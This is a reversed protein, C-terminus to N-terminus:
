YVNWTMYFNGKIRSIKPVAVMPEAHMDITPRGNTVEFYYNPVETKAKKHHFSSITNLESLVYPDLIGSKSKMSYEFQISMEPSHLIEGSNTAFMSDPRVKPFLGVLKEWYVVELGYPNSNDTNFNADNATIGDVYNRTVVYYMSAGYDLISNKINDRTPSHDGLYVAEIYDTWIAVTKYIPFHKTDAFTLTISGATRSAMSHRGYKIKMGHHTDFKEISDLHQDDPAYGKVQNTFMPMFPSEFGTNHQLQMVCTKNTINQISNIDTKDVELLSGFAGRGRLADNITMDSGPKKVINCDPRTFFLYGRLGGIDLYGQPIYFRNFLEMHETATGYLLNMSRLQQEFEDNTPSQKSTILDKWNTAM